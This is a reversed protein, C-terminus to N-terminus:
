QQLSNNQPVGHRVSHLHEHDVPRLNLRHGVVVQHGLILGLLRLLDGQQHADQSHYSLYTGDVVEEGKIQRMMEMPTFIEAYQPYVVTNFGLKLEALEAERGAYFYKEV